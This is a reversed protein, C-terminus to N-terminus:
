VQSRPVAPNDRPRAAGDVLDRGMGILIIQAAVRPRWCSRALTPLVGPEGRRRAARLAGRAARCCPAAAAARRALRLPVTALPLRLEIRLWRKCKHWFHYSGRFGAATGEEYTFGAQMCEKPKFGAEKADKCTSLMGAERTQKCSFGAERAQKISYGAERADKCSFSAERADKCSFCAERVDKCSFGAEKADKCTSLMGAERAQKCSFGAERADKGSFGARRLEAVTAGAAMMAAADFGAAKLEKDSAAVWAADGRVLSAVEYGGQLLAAVSFGGKGAARLEWSKAGAERLQAVRRSDDATLRRGWLALREGGGSLAVQKAALVGDVAKKFNTDENYYDPSEKLAVAQLERDLLTASLPGIASGLKGRVELCVGAAMDGLLKRRKGIVQEITLATLNISLGVSVVLVADEVRMSHVELGTLPAFLVEQEHPYMSLFTIDAGRNIMGQQVEFVIGSGAAGSSSAYDMAVKRDTTTSMFAAEIGGRVGFENARWFADPLGMGSLGRYVKTAATLKSLKVIASNIAHLTTAYKNGM